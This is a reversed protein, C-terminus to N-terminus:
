HNIENMDFLCFLANVYVMTYFLIDMWISIYRLIGKLYHRMGNM